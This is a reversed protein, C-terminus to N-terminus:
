LVKKMSMELFSIWGNSTSYKITCVLQYQGGPSTNVVPLGMVFSYYLHTFVSDTSLRHTPKASLRHCPFFFNHGIQHYALNIVTMSLCTRVCKVHQQVHNSTCVRFVLVSKDLIITYFAINYVTSLCTKVLVFGYILLAIWMSNICLRKVKINEPARVFVSVM